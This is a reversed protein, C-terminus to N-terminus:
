REAPGQVAGFVGAADGVVELFEVVEDLGVRGDIAAREARRGSTGKIPRENPHLAVGVVSDCRINFSDELVARSEHGEPLLEGSDVVVCM